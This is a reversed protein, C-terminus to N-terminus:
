RQPRRQVQELLETNERHQPIWIQVCYQLHPRILVSYLPVIGERARSEGRKQTCGVICNAKWAALVCQQSMGFKKDVMVGLNNEAPSSGILEEGLRHM